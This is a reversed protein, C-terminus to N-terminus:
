YDDDNDSKRLIRWLIIVVIATLFLPLPRFYFRTIRDIIRPQSSESSGTPDDLNVRILTSTSITYYGGYNDRYSLLITLSYNGDGVSDNLFGTLAFPIPANSDIQGVYYTSEPATLFNIDEILTLNVYMAEINGQNLINGSITFKGAVTTVNSPHAILEYILLDINGVVLLGLTHIQTHIVGDLDKFTTTIMIPYTFGIVSEPAYLNLSLNQPHQLSLESFHWRNDMGILILPPPLDLMVTVDHVSNSGINSIQISLPTTQGGTINTGSFEVQLDSLSAKTSGHVVLGGYHTVSQITGVPDKYYLIIVLQYTGAISLGPALLSFKLESTSQAAVQDLERSATGDMIILPPPIAIVVQVDNASASGINRINLPIQTEQEAVLISELLDIEFRARGLIYAIITLKEVKYTLDGLDNEFYMIRLQMPYIENILANQNINLMYQIIGTDGPNFPSTKEVSNILTPYSVPDTDWPTMFPPDEYIGPNVDLKISVGTVPVTSGTYQIIVSLPINNDGPAAEMPANLTGWFTDVVNWPITPGASIKSPETLPLPICVLNVIMIIAFLSSFNVFRRRLVSISKKTVNLSLTHKKLHNNRWNSNM